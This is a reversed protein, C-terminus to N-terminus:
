NRVVTPYTGLGPAVLGHSVLQNVIITSLEGFCTQLEQRFLQADHAAWRVYNREKSRYHIPCSYIEQGDWARLLRATAEVCLAMPPNVGEKAALTASVV